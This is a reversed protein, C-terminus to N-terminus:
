LRANYLRDPRSYVVSKLVFKISILISDNNDLFIYDLFTEYGTKIKPRSLVMVASCDLKMSFFSASKLKQFKTLM